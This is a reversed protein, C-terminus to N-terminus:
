QSSRLSAAIEKLKRHPRSIAEDSREECYSSPPFHRTTYQNLWLCYKEGLPPFLPDRM